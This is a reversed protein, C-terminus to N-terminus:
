RKHGGEHGVPIWGCVLCYLKNLAETAEAGNADDTAMQCHQCRDPIEDGCDIYSNM